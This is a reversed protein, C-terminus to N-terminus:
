KHDYFIFTGKLLRMCNFELQMGVGISNVSLCLEVEAKVCFQACVCARLIFGNTTDCDPVVFICHSNRATFNNTRIENQLFGQRCFSLNSMKSSFKLCTFCGLVWESELSIIKMIYTNLKSRRRQEQLYIFMKLEKTNVSPFVEALLFDTILRLESRFDM